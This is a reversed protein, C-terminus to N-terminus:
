RLYLINSDPLVAQYLIDELEARYYDLRDPNYEQIIGIKEGKKKRQLIVDRHAYGTVFKYGRKAAEGFYALRLLHGGNSGWYGRRVGIGELYATNGSGLEPDKTGRRLECKELASGKAYGVIEGGAHGLRLTILITEKDSLSRIFAEKTIKVPFSQEEYIKLVSDKVAQELEQRTSGGSEPTAIMTLINTVLNKLELEGEWARTFAEVNEFFRKKLEEPTGNIVQDFMEGEGKLMNFYKVSRENIFSPHWGLAHANKRALDLAHEFDGLAYGAVREAVSLFWGLNTYRNRIQTDNWPIGAEDFLRSMQTIAHKAIEGNFPYATRHILALVLNIDLGVEEISRRIKRDNRIFHEVSDEHPKDFDKNPDYDHFLAAVFLYCIERHTIRNSPPQNKAVILTFYAAELEHDINHYGYYDPGLGRKAFESIAHRLIRKLWADQLGMETGLKIIKENLVYEYTTGRQYDLWRGLLKVRRGLKSFHDSSALPNNVHYSPDDGKVSKQNNRNNLGL